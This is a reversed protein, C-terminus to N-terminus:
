LRHDSRLTQAARCPICVWGEELRGAGCFLPKLAGAQGLISVCSLPDLWAAWKGCTTIQFSLQLHLFSLPLAEVQGAGWLLAVGGWPWGRRRAVRRSLGTSAASAFAPSSPARLAKVQPSSLWSPLSVMTPSHGMRLGCGKRAM